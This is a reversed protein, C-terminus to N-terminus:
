CNMTRVNRHAIEEWNVIDTIRTNWSCPCKSALKRHQKIEKGITSSDKGITRGVKFRTDHDTRNFLSPLSSLHCASYIRLNMWSLIRNPALLKQLSYLKSMIFTLLDEKTTLSELSASELLGEWSRRRCIKCCEIIVCNNALHLM